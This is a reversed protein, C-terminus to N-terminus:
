RAHFLKLRRPKGHPFFEIRRESGNEKTVVVMPANPDWAYGFRTANEISTVVMGNRLGARYAAGGTIVDTAVGARESRGIAFGPQFSPVETERFEFAAGLADPPPEIPLGQLIHREFDRHAGLGFKDLAAFFEDYSLPQDRAARRHVHRVASLVTADSKAARLRTEWNLAMLAGRYYSLKTYAVGFKGTNAAQMVEEFTEHRHSNDALNILDRNVLNAFENPSLMGAKRLTIRGLHENVGEIFWMNRVFNESREDAPGVKFVDGTIWSHMMEHALLVTLQHRTIDQKVFCTFQQGVKIGAVNQPRPLVVVNFFPASHDEFANRQARVIREIAEAFVARREQFVPAVFVSVPSQKTKFAAFGGRLAGLATRALRKQSLTVEVRKPDSGLSSYAKWEPPLDRFGIVYRRPVSADGIRLLWQAGAVYLYGPGANPAYTADGFENAPFALTYHITFEGDPGAHAIRSSADPGPLLKTGRRGEIASVYRALEGSGFATDKPLGIKLPADNAARFRLRVLLETSDANPLVRLEYNLAEAEVPNPSPPFAYSSMPCLTRTALIVLATFTLPTRRCGRGRARKGPSSRSVLTRSRSIRESKAAFM